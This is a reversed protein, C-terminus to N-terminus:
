PLTSFAAVFLSAISLQEPLSDVGPNQRLVGHKSQQNSKNVHARRHTDDPCRRDFACRQELHIARPRRRGRKPAEPERLTGARDAKRQEQERPDVERLGHPSPTRRPDVDRQEPEDAIPAISAPTVRRAISRNRTAESTPRSYLTSTQDNRVRRPIRM